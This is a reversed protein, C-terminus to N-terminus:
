LPQSAPMCDIRHQLVQLKGSTDLCQASLLIVKTQWRNAIHIHYDSGKTQISTIDNFFLKWSQFAKKEGSPFHLLLLSNTGSVAFLYVAQELLCIKHHQHHAQCRLCVLQDPFSLQLQHFGCSGENVDASTGGLDMPQELQMWCLQPVHDPM